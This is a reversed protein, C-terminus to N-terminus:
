PETPPAGPLRAAVARALSQEVRRRLRQRAAALPPLDGDAGFLEGRHLAKVRALLDALNAGATPGGALAEDLQDLLRELAWADVYACRRDIAVRGDQHAIAENRGLLRRLRYVTTKLAHYAADGEADPWLWEALVEQRVGRAGQVVLLRLMELPKRQAKRGPPLPEGDRFVAFDGLAQIRLGWPWAEVGGAREGPALRHARILDHVFAPEIGHELALACCDALERAEFWVLHLCGLERAAAFGGRLLAVSRGDDARRMAERALALLCVAEALRSGIRRAQLLAQELEPELSERPGALTCSVGYVLESLPAGTAATLERCVRAHQRALTVDGRRHAVLLAAHHYAGSAFASSRAQSGSGAMQQLARDAGALDGVLLKAMVQSQLLFADWAHLGSAAAIALGHEVAELCADVRCLFLHHLASGIHWFIAAAPDAGAGSAFAGLADIVLRAKALDIAWGGHYLVLARGAAMRLHAEGPSLALGMARAEWSPLAAHWPQRHTLAAFAATVLRAEVEPGGCDPFRACLGDLASIWRDLPALEQLVFIRTEAIAAWSLYAGAPCGTSCFLDFARELHRLAASPDLISSAEGLHLLLWPDCAVVEAPLQSAWRAVTESRGQRMLSPARTRIVRAAEAWAGVQVYIPFAEDAQGSEELLRAASRGLEARRGPPLTKAPRGLLFERFLAHYQYAADHRVVFCGRRSLGALIEEAREVGTLRVALSGQIRPLLATEILVRRTDPDSRELVEQAFYDFLAQEGGERRGRGTGSRRSALLLVLGAAWGETRGHFASVVERDAGSLGWLGAISVAERETLALEDGGLVELSASAHLRALALPPETRSLVVVTTGPPLEALGERLATHLSSDPRVEHYDDLVIVAPAGAGACLARVLLRAFGGPAAVFEPTFTPLHHHRRGLGEAALALYHFFTAVDGDAEDLQLWLHRLRRTRLWSAVLTTKGAGPPAVIWLVRRQRSRDLRRFLRARPLTRAMRPM